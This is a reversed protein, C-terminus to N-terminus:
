FTPEAAADAPEPEANDGAQEKLWEVLTSRPTDAAQELRLVAAADAPSAVLAKVEGINAAAAYAEALDAPEAEPDGKEPEEEAPEAAPEEEAPAPTPAEARSVEEWAASRRYVREAPSGEVVTVTAKSEDEGLTSRYTIRM